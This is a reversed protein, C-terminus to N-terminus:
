RAVFCVCVPTPVETQSGLEALRGTTHDIGFVVVNNTDQNAVLLYEGTPDIIFHRPNRGGVTQHDVSTLKGTGHDVSFIAITDNGRNSAYVYNGDPSVQIEAPHNTGVFGAPLTSIVQVKTFAATAASYNFVDVTSNLENVVYAHRAGPAFALHRPGAGPELEASAPTSPTLKGAKGDFQYIMVKDAGLDVAFVHKNSGDWQIEHAHPGEQRSADPGTGHHQIISSADGLGGDPKVPM